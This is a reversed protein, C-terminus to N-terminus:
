DLISEVIGEEIEHSKEEIPIPPIEQLLIDTFITFPIIIKITFVCFTELFYLDFSFLNNSNSKQFSLPSITFHLTIVKFTFRSIHYGKFRDVYDYTFLLFMM